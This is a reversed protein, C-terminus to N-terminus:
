SETSRPHVPSGPLWEEARFKWLGTSMGGVVLVLQVVQAFHFHHPGKNFFNNLIEFHHCGPMWGRKPCRSLAFGRMGARPRMCSAPRAWGQGERM